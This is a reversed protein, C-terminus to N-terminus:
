LVHVSFRKVRFTMVRMDPVANACTSGTAARGTSELIYEGSCNPVKPSKRDIAVEIDTREVPRYSSAMKSGFFFSSAYLRTRKDVVIAHQKLKKKKIKLIMMRTGTDLIKFFGSIDLHIKRAEKEM